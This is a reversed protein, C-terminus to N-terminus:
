GPPGGAGWRPAGRLAAALRLRQRMGASYAGVRMDAQSALGVQELLRDIKKRRGAVPGGDLRDLLALNRRGSLYPYFAPTDVFGAVSEPVPGATSDLACGLLRVSGADRRVLGLAIRMLTTKGAGNLGLLGHVCAHRAVLDVGRLAEVAGYRKSIAVAEL